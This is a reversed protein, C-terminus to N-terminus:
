TVKEFISMNELFHCNSEYNNKSMIGDRDSSEDLKAKTKSPEEMRNCCVWELCWSSGLCLPNTCMPVLSLWFTLGVAISRRNFGTKSM